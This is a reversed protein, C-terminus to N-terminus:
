RALLVQFFHYSDGASPGHVATAAGAPRICGALSRGTFNIDAPNEPGTFAGIFKNNNLFITDSEQPPTGSSEFNTLKNIDKCIEAKVYPLVAILDMVNAATCGAAGAGAGIVCTETPFYWEGFHPQASFRQDLWDANPVEYNLAGGSSHFVKGGDPAVPAHVYGSVTTNEFSINAESIGNRQIKQIAQQFAKGNNVIQIAFARAQSSTIKSSVTQTSRNITFMLAAFLILGVFIYIFVNGHENRM